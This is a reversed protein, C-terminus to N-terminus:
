PRAGKPPSDGPPTDRHAHATRTWADWEQEDIAHSWSRPRTDNHGSACGAGARSLRPLALSLREHWGIPGLGTDSEDFSALHAIHLASLEEVLAGHKWWCNPVVSVPVYYRVTFWEVWARLAVWVDRADRDSLRRWDVVHAGLPDSPGDHDDAAPGTFEAAPTGSLGAARIGALEFALLREIEAPDSGNM